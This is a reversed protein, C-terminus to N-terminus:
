NQVIVGVGAYFDVFHSSRASNRDLSDVFQFVVSKNPMELINTHNIVTASQGSYQIGSNEIEVLAKSRSTEWKTTTTTGDALVQKQNMTIGCVLCLAMVVSLFVTILSKAKTTKSMIEVERYIKKFRESKLRIM